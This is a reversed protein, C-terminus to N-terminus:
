EEDDENLEWWPGVHEVEHGYGLGGHHTRHIMDRIVHFGYLVAALGLISVGVTTIDPLLGNIASLLAASFM